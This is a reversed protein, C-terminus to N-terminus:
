PARAELANSPVLGSPSAPDAVFAQLTLAFGPPVAAALHGDFLMEGDDDTVLGALVIDPAPVLTGGKFPLHVTSLGAVLGVVAAAAECRLHLVLRSNAALSGGGTLQPPQDFLGQDAFARDHWLGLQNILTRVGNYVMVVLDPAGDDNVDALSFTPGLVGSNPDPGAYDRRLFSADGAGELVTVQSPSASTVVIDVHGDGDIDGLEFDDVGNGISHVLPSGVLGNGLGLMVFVEAPGSSSNVPAEVVDPYGDENVDGTAVGDNLSPGGIVLPVALQAHGLNLLVCHSVVVDPLGDVDMDALVVRIPFGPLDQTVPPAWGGGPLGRRVYVRDADIGLTVIDPLGDGTLDGALGDRMDSSSSTFKLHHDVFTGDGNGKLLRASGNIGHMALIDDLGDGTADGAWARITPTTLDIYTTPGFTGDGHGLAMAVGGTGTDSHDALALDKLGDQDFDAVALDVASPVAAKHLVSSGYTGDGRNLALTTNPAYPQGAALDALGDGDLDAAALKGRILASWRGPGFTSDIGPVMVSSDLSKSGLDGMLDIVGDGTLDAALLPYMVLSIEVEDPFTGDGWGFLLRSAGGSTAVLDLHGDDDVDLLQYPSVLLPHCVASWEAFTGDGLSRFVRWTLVGPQCATVSNGNGIVVDPVGDEVVDGVLIRQAGLPVMTVAGPPLFGGSGDGSLVVLESFQPLFQQTRLVVLDPAPGGAVDAVETLKYTPAGLSQLAGALLGGQGDGLLVRFEPVTYGAVVVVDLAGNADLDEVQLRCPQDVAPFSAAPGFDTGGLGLAVQITDTAYSVDLLDPRGDADIDVLTTSACTSGGAGFLAQPREFVLPQQAALSACALLIIPATRLRGM